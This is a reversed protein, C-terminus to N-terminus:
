VTNDYTAPGVNKNANSESFRKVKNKDWGIVNKNKKIEFTDKLNYSGPGVQM